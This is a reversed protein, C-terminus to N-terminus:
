GRRRLRDFASLAGIRWPEGVWNTIEKNTHVTFRRAYINPTFSERADHTMARCEYTGCPLYCKAGASGLAFAMGDTDVYAVAGRAKLYSAPLRVAELPDTHSGSGDHMAPNVIIPNEGDSLITASLQFEEVMDREGICRRLFGNYIPENEIEIILLRRDEHEELGFSVLIKPGKFIHSLMTGGLQQFAIAIAALGAVIYAGTNNLDSPSLSLFM